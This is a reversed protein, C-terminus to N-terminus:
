ARVVDSNTRVAVTRWYPVTCAMGMDYWIRSTSWQYM